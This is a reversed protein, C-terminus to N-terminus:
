VEGWLGGGIVALLDLPNLDTQELVFYQPNLVCVFGIKQWILSIISPDIDYTCLLVRAKIGNIVVPSSNLLRAITSEAGIDSKKLDVERMYGWLGEGYGAMFVHDSDTTIVLFNSNICKNNLKLVCRYIALYYSDIITNSPLQQPNYALGLITKHDKHRLLLYDVQMNQEFALQQKFKSCVYNYINIDLLRARLPAAIYLFKDAKCISVQYGNKSYNIIKRLISFKNGKPKVYFSTAVENNNFLTVKRSRLM